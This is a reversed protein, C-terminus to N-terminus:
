AEHSKHVSQFRSALLAGLVLWLIRQYFIEHAQSFMVILMLLFMFATRRPSTPHLLGPVAFRLLTMGSWLMLAMGLLGFEALIWLPTSHIM